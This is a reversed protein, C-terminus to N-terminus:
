KIHRSRPRHFPMQKMNYIKSNWPSYPRIVKQITALTEEQEIARYSYLRLALGIAAAIEEDEQPEVPPAPQETQKKESKKFFFRM